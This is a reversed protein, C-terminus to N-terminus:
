HLHEKNKYIKFILRLFSYYDVFERTEKKPPKKEDIKMGYRTIRDYEKKVKPMKRDKSKSIKWTM